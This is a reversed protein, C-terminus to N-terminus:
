KADSPSGLSTWTTTGEKSIKMRFTEGTEKDVLMVVGNRLAPIVQYKDKNGGPDSVCSSLLSITILSTAIIIKKM